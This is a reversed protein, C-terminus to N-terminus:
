VLEITYAPFIARKLAKRGKVVPQKTDKEVVPYAKPFPRLPPLLM